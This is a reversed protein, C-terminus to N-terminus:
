RRLNNAIGLMEDASQIAKSNLEYARQAMILNIMETVVQVNSMELFGQAIGGFGEEGPNGEISDGCAQTARYLNEGIAELGAPNVFNVLRIRGIEDFDGDKDKITVTGDRAVRLESSGEPIELTGGGKGSGMLHVVYGSTTVVRGDADLKFSGDRTYALQGDPLEVEFFGAGEIALDLPNDTQQLNGVGFSRGSAASKVGLGVQLGTGGPVTPRLNQYLLDQFELRVRKYGPTNVNALNNSITDVAMQQSYMGSAASWLARIM